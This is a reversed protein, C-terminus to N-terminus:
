RQKQRAENKIPDTENKTLISVVSIEFSKTFESEFYNGVLETVAM